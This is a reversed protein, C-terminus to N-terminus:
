RLAHKVSEGVNFIEGLILGLLTVMGSDIDPNLIWAWMWVMAVGTALGLLGDILRAFFTM